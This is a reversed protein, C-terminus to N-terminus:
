VQKTAYLLYSSIRKVLHATAWRQMQKYGEMQMRQKSMQVCKEDASKGNYERANM